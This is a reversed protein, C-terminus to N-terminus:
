GDSNDRLFQEVEAVLKGVNSADLAEGGSPPADDDDEDDMDLGADVLSELRRVYAQLEDNDSILEDVETEYGASAATLESLDVPTGAILATREALALAAKASTVNSAYAPTAAWLSLSALDVQRCADHLVGVIGTPGEYRSRRLAHREILEADSGTGIVSVDRTHPVDALLAGLTIVLRAEIAEAIDTVQECFTRWRLHPEVGLLIAVDTGGALRATYLDTNPWQIERTEGDVLRVQPRNVSFDFFEECEVAAVHQADWAEALFRAATTAAEAADNWGAFAAILVPARLDPEEFWM